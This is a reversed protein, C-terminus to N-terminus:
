GAVEMTMPRADVGRRGLASREEDTLAVIVITQDGLTLVHFRRPSDGLVTNVRAILAADFWDGRSHTNLEHRTGGFEFTVTAGDETWSEEINTPGFAGASIAGLKAVTEAYVDNGPLADCELDLWLTREQDKTMVLIDALPPLSVPPPLPEDWEESHEAVLRDALESDSLDPFASFFGLGRYFSVADGLWDEGGM